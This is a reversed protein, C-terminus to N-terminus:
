TPETLIDGLADLDEVEHDVESGSPVAVHLSQPRRVRVTTWGLSKPGGFDKRPNDAVYVFSTGAGVSRAIQEFARPHPKGFGEGLEATLIVQTLWTHLELARVKARQSEVPGDTVAALIYREFSAEICRRADALLEIRPRHTRYCAVLQNVLSPSADVGMSALVDDFIRGRSGGEFLAWARELFGGVRHEQVVFEHVAEFGSRVYSRELYLTDDVDFVL